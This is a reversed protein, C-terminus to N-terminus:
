ELPQSSPSATETDSQDTTTPALIIGVAAVIVLFLVVGGALFKAPDAPGTFCSIAVITMTLGVVIGFVIKNTIM